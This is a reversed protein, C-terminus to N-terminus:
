FVLEYAALQEGRQVLLTSGSLKLSVPIPAGDEAATDTGNTSVEPLPLRQVKDPERVNAVAIGDATPYILMDNWGDGTGVADPFLFAFDLNKPNFGVLGRPSLWTMQHPLDGTIVHDTPIPLQPLPATAPRDTAPAPQEAEPVPQAEEPREMAGDEPASEEEDALQTLDTSSLRTGDKRYATVVDGRRVVAADEGIAVLQLDDTVDGLEVDAYLEPERSEKPVSDQLVLHAQGDCDNIVALLELRTLANVITCNDHPQLNIEAPASMKGYEVVRVLDDRWLEVFQDSFVGAYSNSRIPTVEAPALSRRTAAYAGTEPALSVTEGCGADTGFTLVVHGNSKSATCLPVDRHYHWREDGSLTDLARVGYDDAAITVGSFVIPEPEIGATRSTTQWLTRLQRPNKEELLPRNSVLDGAAPGEAITHDVRRAPSDYWTWAIVAIVAVILLASAIRNRNQRSSKM